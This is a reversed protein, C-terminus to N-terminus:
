QRYMEAPEPKKLDGNFLKPLFSRTNPNLPANELNSITKAHEFARSPNLELKLRSRLKKNEVKSLITEARKPLNTQDCIALSYFVRIVTEFRHEFGEFQNTRDNLHMNRISEWRIPSDKWYDLDVMKNLIVPAGTVGRRGMRGLSQFLTLLSRSQLFNLEGSYRDAVLKECVRADEGNGIFGLMIFINGAYVENSKDNLIKYLIPKANTNALRLFSPRGEPSFAAGITEQITLIEPKTATSEEFGM